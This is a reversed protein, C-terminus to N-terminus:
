KGQGELADVAQSLGSHRRACEGLARRDKGWLRAIDSATLDRSPIDVVGQCDQRLTMPVNALHPPEVVKRM